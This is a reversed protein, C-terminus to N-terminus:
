DMCCCCLQVIFRSGQGLKSECWIKGKLTDVLKKVIFLGLGTSHEGATPVPTLRTFKGFLKAQDEISLGPGQDEVVCYIKGDVVSVQVSVRTWPLSYKIANSILNDMIQHFLQADTEISCATGSFELTIHKQIARDQHRAVCEALIQGLSTKQRVIKIKGSEVANVDLLNSILSFMRQSSDEIKSAYLRIEELAMEDAEEHLEEAYGKIASLPNKLDHAVIGMLENKEQMLLNLHTNQSAIRNKSRLVSIFFIFILVNIAGLEAYRQYFLFQLERLESNQDYAILYGVNQQQVNSIPIFTATYDKDEVRTDVIFSQEAKLQKDVKHRLQRNIQALLQPSIEKHNKGVGSEEVYADSLTVPQYNDQEAAFVTDMVMQKKLLLVFEGHIVQKIVKEIAPFAVSTEVSGIHKNQYFLPFVYRFGNYIRGEEFGFIPKKHTNAWMLSYRVDFLKDGFKDPRHFRLLSTGDPLQFHLQRLDLYQLNQYTEKLTQYLQQRAHNQQAIETTNALAVWRLIEERDIIETYLLTATKNYSEVSINYSNRLTETRHNEISRYKEQLYQWPPIILLLQILIFIVAFLIEHQNIGVWKGLKLSGQRTIPTTQKDCLTEMNM